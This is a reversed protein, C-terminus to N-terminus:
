LPTLFPAKRRNDKLNRDSVNETPFLLNNNMTLLSSIFIKLAFFGWKRHTKKKKKMIAVWPLVIFLDDDSSTTVKLYQEMETIALGGDINAKRLPKQM